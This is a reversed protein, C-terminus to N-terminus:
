VVGVENIGILPSTPALVLSALHPWRPFSQLDNADMLRYDKPDGQRGQMKTFGPAASKAVMDDDGCNVVSTTKLLYHVHAHCSLANPDQSTESEWLGFNVAIRYVAALGIVENILNLTVLGQEWGDESQVFHRNGIHYRPPLPFLLVGRTAETRAQLVWKKNRWVELTKTPWWGCRSNFNKKKM